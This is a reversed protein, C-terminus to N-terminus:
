GPDMHTALVLTNVCLVDCVHGSYRTILHLTQLKFYLPFSLLISDSSSVLAQM